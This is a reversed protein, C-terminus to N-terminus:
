GELCAHSTQKSGAGETVIHAEDATVLFLADLRWMGVCAVSLKASTCRAATTLEPTSDQGGEKHNGDVHLIMIGKWLHRRHRRGELLHGHADFGAPRLLAAASLKPTKTWFCFLEQVPEHLATGTFWSAMRSM